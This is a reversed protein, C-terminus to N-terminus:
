SGSKALKVACVPSSAVDGTRPHPWLKGVEWRPTQAAGALREKPTVDAPEAAGPTQRTANGEPPRAIRCPM